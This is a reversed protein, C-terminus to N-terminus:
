SAFRGSQSKPNRDLRTPFFATFLCAGSVVLAIPLLSAWQKLGFLAQGLNWAFNGNILRKLCDTYIASYEFFKAQSIKVYYDEPPLLKVDSAVVITMQFVSIVTLIIVLPFLRRPVFILPLCLFPLM